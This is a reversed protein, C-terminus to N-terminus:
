SARVAMEDGGSVLQVPRAQDPGGLRVGENRSTLGPDSLFRLKDAIARWGIIERVDASAVRDMMPM